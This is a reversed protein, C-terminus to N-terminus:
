KSEAVLVDDLFLLKRDGMSAKISFRLQVVQGAYSSLDYRYRNWVKTPNAPAAVSSTSLGSATLATWSFGLDPSVEVQFATQDDQSGRQDFLAFFVLAPKRAKTLSIVDKTTITAEGFETARNIQNNNGYTLSTTGFNTAMTSSSWSDSLSTSTPARGLWTGALYSEFSDYFYPAAPDIGFGQTGKLFDGHTTRAATEYPNTSTLKDGYTCGALLLTALLTTTTKM